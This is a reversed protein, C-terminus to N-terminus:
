TQGVSQKKEGIIDLALVPCFDVCTGCDTCDDDVVNLGDLDMYLATEPCLCICGACALCIDRDIALM